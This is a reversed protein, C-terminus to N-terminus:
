DTGSVREKALQALAAAMHGVEVNSRAQLDEAALKEDHTLPVGGPNGSAWECDAVIREATRPDTLFSWTREDDGDQGDERVVQFNGTGLSNVDTHVHVRIQGDDRRAPTKRPAAM